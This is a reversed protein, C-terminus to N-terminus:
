PLSVFHMVGGLRKCLMQCSSMLGPAGDSTISLPVPLGREVMNRLLGLWAEASEKNGLEMHLLVKRGDRLIGWACLVAEKVGARLRLSEYIADLFLCELEFCSLDRKQFADFEQWLVETIESVSSRSLVREGTSSVFSDEIDRASLGRAYMEVAM